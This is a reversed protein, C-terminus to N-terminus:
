QGESAIDTHVQDGSKLQRPKAKKENHKQSKHLEEQAM